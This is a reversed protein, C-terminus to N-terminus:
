LISAPCPSNINVYFPRGRVGSGKIGSSLELHHLVSFLFTCNCSHGNHKSSYVSQNFEKLDTTTCKSGYFRAYATALDGLKVSINSHGRMYTIHDPTVKVITSTGRGPNEFVSGAKINAFLLQKFSSEM